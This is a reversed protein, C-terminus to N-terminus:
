IGLRTFLKYWFSKNNKHAIHYNKLQKLFSANSNKVIPNPSYLALFAVNGVSTANLRNYVRRTIHPLEHRIFPLTYNRYTGLDVYESQELLDMEIISPYMAELHQKSQRRGNNDFESSAYYPPMSPTNKTESDMKMNKFRNVIEGM